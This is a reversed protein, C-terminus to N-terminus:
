AFSPEGVLAVKFPDPFKLVFCLMSDDNDGFRSAHLETDVIEGWVVFSLGCCPLDGHLEVVDTELHFLGLLVSFFLICIDGFPLVVEM